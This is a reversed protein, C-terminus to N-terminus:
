SLIAEERMIPLAIYFTSGQKLKSSVWVRGDHKAVIERVLALGLGTGKEEQVEAADTARYFKEFIRDLDKEPIGYGEDAVSIIQENGTEELSITITTNPPSYKVANSFLNLIVEGMMQRDAYVNSVKEPFHLKVKINKSDALYSSMSLVSKIVADMTMPVKHVESKGSEIRSIDLYKNILESLRRSEKLIIRAYELSQEPSISEDLLLESFGTISTLPSRLEHSVMSVVESKKRDIEKEKTLDRLAIVIGFQKRNDGIVKSAIAQLIIPERQNDPKVEIEVKEESSHSGNNVKDILGLLREDKILKDLDLSQYNSRTVNFWNEAVSNMLEIRKSNDVVIVGDGINKLIAQIKEWEFLKEGVNKKKIEHHEKTLMNFFKGFKGLEDDADVPIRLEFQGGAIKRAIKNYSRVREFLSSCLVRTALAALGLTVILIIIFFLFNEKPSAPAMETQLRAFKLFVIVVPIFIVVFLSLFIKLSFNGKIEM